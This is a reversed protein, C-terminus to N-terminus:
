LTPGVMAECLATTLMSAFHTLDVASPQIGHVNGTSLAKQKTEGLSKLFGHQDRVIRRLTWIETHRDVQM